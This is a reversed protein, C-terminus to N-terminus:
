TLGAQKAIVKNYPLDFIKKVDLTSTVLGLKQFTDAENQQYSIIAPTIPTGVSQDSAVAEEAVPLTVGYTKVYTQAALLPEKRLQAEAKYFRGIFDAIAAAKQPNALAADSATLYGITETYGAGNALVRIKGSAEDLGTLPQSIVAADVQGNAVATSADTLALNDLQVGSYPIHAKQLVRVLFYQEVTGEQVAISHGRLQAVTKIPSDAPVVLDYPSIKPNANLTAAVVKVPDGAQQAFVTPTEAMFGLDVSGSTEAAIVPPGGIFNAWDVTYPAGALANTAAFVTQYAKLQDGFTITVGALSPTKASQAGAMGVGSAGLTVFLVGLALATVWPRLGAALPRRFSRLPSHM